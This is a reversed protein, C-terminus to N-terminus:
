ETVAHEFLLEQANIDKALAARAIAHVALGVAPQNGYTFLTSLQLGARRRWYAAREGM